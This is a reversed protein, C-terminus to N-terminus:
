PHLHAAEAIRRAARAIRRAAERVEAESLFRSLGIRVAGARREEAIGMAQLVASDSVVGSHCASTSSLMVGDLDLAILLDEKNLVGPFSLNVIGTMRRGGSEEPGNIVFGAGEARLTELLAAELAALAAHLSAPDPAARVAQAFGAAAAVNETGARRYKEQAGGVLHPELVLGDRVYAFGAGKPGHVKHAAVTLFDVPLTRVDFPFKLYSQVIDLHFPVRPHRLRVAMLADLDQLAGTENNCHLLSVLRTDPRARLVADLEDPSIRGEGDVGLPTVEVRDPRRRVEWALRAAVSAHEVASTVIHVREQARLASEIVGSLVLNNAETGGATLVIESPRAGLSDALVRRAEALVRAARRGAAHISSPNGFCEEMVRVMVPPVSPDLPTTACNDLYIMVTESVPIRPEPNLPIPRDSPYAGYSM